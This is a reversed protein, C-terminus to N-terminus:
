GEAPEESDDQEENGDEHSEKHIISLFRMSQPDRRFAEYYPRCEICRMISTGM